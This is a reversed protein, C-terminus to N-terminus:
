GKTTLTQESAALMREISRYNFRQMGFVIVTFAGFLGILSWIQPDNM